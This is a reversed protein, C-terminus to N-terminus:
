GHTKIRALEADDLAVARLRASRDKMRDWYSTFAPRAPITGFQLGYGIQSGLYLDVASFRDGALFAPAALADHLTEITREYSGYGVFGAKAPPVDVGLARNVIAYELPGAGFFMWRLFAARDDGRLGAQPFTEALYTLIAPCETVVRGDHVLAPVKGMPNIALYAPAKMTTAYDLYDTEYSEGIEELMWRVMRGRSMPHTYLKLM